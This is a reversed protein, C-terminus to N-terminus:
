HFKSGADYVETKDGTPSNKKENVDYLFAGLKPFDGGNDNDNDNWRHYFYNTTM